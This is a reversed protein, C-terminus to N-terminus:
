RNHPLVGGPRVKDIQHPFKTAQTDRLSWAVALIVCLVVFALVAYLQNRQRETM